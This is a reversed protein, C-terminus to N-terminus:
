LLCRDVEGSAAVGTDVLVGRDLGGARRSTAREGEIGGDIGGDIRLRLQAGLRRLQVDVEVLGEVRLLVRLGNKRQEAGEVVAPIELDRRADLRREEVGPVDEARRDDPEPDAVAGVPRLSDEDERAVEAAGPRRDDPVRGDEVLGIVDDDFRGVAPPLVLRV